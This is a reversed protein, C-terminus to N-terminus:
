EVVERQEYRQAVARAQMSAPEDFAISCGHNFGAFASCSVLPCARHPSSSPKLLLLAILM